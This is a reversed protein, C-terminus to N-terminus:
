RMGKTNYKSYGFMVFWLLVPISGSLILYRDGKDLANWWAIM